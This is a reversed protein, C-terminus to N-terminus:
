KVAKGTIITTRWNADVPGDEFQWDSGFVEDLRSRIYRGGTGSSVESHATEVGLPADFVYIDRGGDRRHEIAFVIEESEYRNHTLANDLLTHLIGPPIQPAPMEFRADIGLQRGLRHSMLVAHARCLEIEEELGVLPRDALRAFQRFETALDEVFAPAEDPRTEYLEMVTTLSNMIFHPQIHRSLLEVQLRSARMSLRSLAIETVVMDFALEIALFLMATALLLHLSDPDLMIAMLALGFAAAIMLGSRRSQLAARASLGLGFLCLGIFALTDPDAALIGSLVFALGLLGLSILPWLWFPRLGFRLSVFHPIGLFLLLAPVIAASDLLYHAPYALSFGRTLFDIAMLAITSAALVALLAFRYRQAPRTFALYAMFIGVLVALGGVAGLLAIRRDDRRALTGADDISLDLFFAQGALRADSSLRLAIVHSGDGALEVPITFRARAYGPAEAFSAITIRGSRGILVGDWYVEYAARTEISLVPDFFRAFDPGLAIRQRVWFPGSPDAGLGSVPQWGTDDLGPDANARDGGARFVPEQALASSALCLGALICM